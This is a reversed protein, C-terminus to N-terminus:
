NTKKVKWVGAMVEEGTTEKGELARSRYTGAIVDHTLKGEFSTELDCGCDPDRYPELIGTVRDGELRMLRFRLAHLLDPREGAPREDNAGLPKGWGRPIMIIEGRSQSGDKSVSFVVTGARGSEDSSYIGEWRGSFRAFDEGSGEIRFDPLTCSLAVLLPLTLAVVSLSM